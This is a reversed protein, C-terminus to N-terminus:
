IRVAVDNQVEKNGIKVTYLVNIIRTHEGDTGEGEIVRMDDFEVNPIYGSM